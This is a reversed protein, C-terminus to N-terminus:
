GPIGPLSDPQQTKPIRVLLRTEATAFTKTIGVNHGRALAELGRRHGCPTSAPGEIIGLSVFCNASCLKNVPTESLHRSLCCAQLWRFESLRQEDRCATLM